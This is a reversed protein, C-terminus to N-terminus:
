LHNSQHHQHCPRPRNLNAQHIRIRVSVEEPFDVAAKVTIKLITTSSSTTTTTTTTTLTPSLTRLKTKQDEFVEKEQEWYHLPHLLVILNTKKKPNRLIIGLPPKTIDMMMM